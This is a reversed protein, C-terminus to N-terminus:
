NDVRIAVKPGAGALLAATVVVLAVLGLPRKV